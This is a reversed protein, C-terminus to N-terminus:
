AAVEAAKQETKKPVIPVVTPTPADPLDFGYSVREAEQLRTELEEHLHSYVESMTQPKRGM